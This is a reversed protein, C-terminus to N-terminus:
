RPEIGWQKFLNKLKNWLPHICKFVAFNWKALLLIFKSTSTYTKYYYWMSDFDLEMIKLRSLASKTTQAHNHIVSLERCFWVRYGAREMRRGLIPEEAYLFTYPDFMGAEHFAAARVLMFCGSVWGCPGTPADVCLDECLHSKLKAYLKAPLLNSVSCLWIFVVLRRFAGIWKRPSQSIGAPTIVQPGIIGIRPDSDFLAQARSLDFAQEFLLDNNSIIYYPDNWLVQAIQVGLNNGKAYGLNDGSDCYIIEYGDVCFRYLVQCISEPHLTECAGYKETLRALANPVSGNEVIVIHSAGTKGLAKMCVDIYSITPELSNYDVLILSYM